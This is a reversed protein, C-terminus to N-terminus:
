LSFEGVAIRDRGGMYPRVAEPIVVSGDPQQFNEVVAIWLRPLALGSANLTHVLEAKAGAERRFRISSREAQFDGCKSISSV